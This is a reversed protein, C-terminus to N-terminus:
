ARVPQAPGVLLRVRPGSTLGGTPAPGLRRTREPHPREMVAQGADADVETTGQSDVLYYRRHPTRWLYAAPGLQRAQYGAHTKWRHHRRRLPASNHTGTQGPPGLPDYPVPHDLDVSRSESGTSFPFVDGRSALWVRERLAEPHEYASTQVDDNLDVIPKVTVHADGLLERLQTYLLPGAGEVRAM